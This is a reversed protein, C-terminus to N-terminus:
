TVLSPAKAPGLVRSCKTSVTIFKSPSLIEECLYSLLIFFRNPDVKSIPIKSFISSPKRSIFFGLEIKVFLSFIEPTVVVIVFSPV